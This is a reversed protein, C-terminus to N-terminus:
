GFNFMKSQQIGRQKAAKMCTTLLRQMPYKSEIEKVALRGGSRRLSSNRRTYPLVQSHTLASNITILIGLVILLNRM